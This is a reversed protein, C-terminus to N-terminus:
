NKNILISHELNLLFDKKYLGSTYGGLKVNTNIVR